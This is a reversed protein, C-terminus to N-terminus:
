LCKIIWDISNLFELNGDIYRKCSQAIAYLENIKNQVAKADYGAETLKQVREEGIGYKGHLVDSVVSTDVPRAEPPSTHKGRAMELWEAYSIYCRDFDLDGDWGILRGCCTYQQMVFRRFPEVSGKQWPKDVFGNVPEMDAYQAIWLQYGAEAIEDFDQSQVVSLSCYVLPKVGSLEYVRDLFRKLYGTGAQLAKDEYDAVPIGDGFYHRTHTWFYNAEAIPDGGTLFHYYGWPKGLEQATKIWNDCYPNFYSTGETAKVIVGDLAPNKDCIAKLDLAKQWSSIDIFNMGM